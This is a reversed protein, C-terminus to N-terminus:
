GGLELRIQLAPLKGPEDGERAARVAANWRRLAALLDEVDVGMHRPAYPALLNHATAFLDEAWFLSASEWHQCAGSLQILGKYFRNSPQERWLATLQEQAEEYDGRNFCEVFKLYEPDYGRRDKGAM